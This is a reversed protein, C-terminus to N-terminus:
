VITTPELTARGKEKVVTISNRINDRLDTHSIVLVTGKDRSKNELITMLRELGAPDLAHDIEDAMFLRIPKNARAAVLDQLAMACALRVKRKEGGSLLEFSDGGTASTVDIVFKERLEGKATASITSWVATVNGDTLTSLYESTRSNLHPTVTDLIHARVGAPSFVRAAEEAVALSEAAAVRVAEVKAIADKIKTIQAEAEQIREIFPNKEAVLNKHKLELQEVGKQQHKWNTLASQLKSKDDALKELQATLASVDSMSDRHESLAKTATAVNQSSVALAKDADALADQARKLAAEANARATDVDGAELEHGCHECHGSEGVHDLAHEANKVENLRTDRAHAARSEAIGADHVLQGLRSEEKREGDSGAIKSRTDNEENSIAEIKKEIKPGLDAKFAAVAAEHADKANLIEIGQAHDWAGQKVKNDTINSELLEVNSQLKDIKAQEEQVAVRREKVIRTAVDSAAQLQAIGASEEILVKLQKDTMGPLDPMKEQGAYIASAFVEPGCGMVKDVLVQTLKDTGKTLDTWTSGSGFTSGPQHELRLMNKHVKHKRYRTIRYADETEEDFLTIEVSCDKKAKNNVIKDGTVGKATEGYTGWCLADPISSKGSGNSEQSTDDRNEGQILILGKDDLGMEIHGIACFNDIVLKLIKM